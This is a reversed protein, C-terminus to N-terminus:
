AGVAGVGDGGGPDRPTLAAAILKVRPGAPGSKMVTAHGNVWKSGKSGM